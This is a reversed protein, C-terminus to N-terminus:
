EIKTFELRVERRERVALIILVASWGDQGERFSFRQVGVGEAIAPSGETRWGGAVLQGSYHLLISDAPMTTRLTSNISGESGSWSSGRGFAM